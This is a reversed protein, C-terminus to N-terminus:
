RPAGAHWRGAWARNSLTDGRAERLSVFRSIQSVMVHQQSMHAHVAEGGSWRLRGAGVWHAECLRV